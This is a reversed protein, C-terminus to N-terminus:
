DNVKVKSRSRLSEAVGGFVNMADNVLTFPGAWAVHPTLITNPIQVLPNNTSLPEEAFVDLGSAKIKKSNLANILAEEDVLEGRATNIFISESKMLNFEKAGISNKTHSNLPLHVTIVDSNIFLEEWNVYSAGLEEQLEPIKNLDHYLIRCGWHQLLRIVEHGIEGIGLVGVTLNRILPINGPVVMWSTGGRAIRDSEPLRKVLTLILAVTHEAVALFNTFPYQVVKIGKAKLVDLDIQRTDNGLIHVEILNKAKKVLTEDIRGKCVVLVDADDIIKLCEEYTSVEVIETNFDKFIDKLGIIKSPADIDEQVLSEKKWDAMTGWPGLGAKFQGDNGDFVIIKWQSM